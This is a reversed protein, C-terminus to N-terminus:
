YHPLLLMRYRFGVLLIRDTVAADMEFSYSEPCNMPNMSPCAAPDFTPNSCCKEFDRHRCRYVAAEGLVPSEVSSEMLMKMMRKESFPM